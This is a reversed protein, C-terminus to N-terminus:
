GTIERVAANISKEGRACQELLQQWKGSSLGHALEEQFRRGARWVIERALRNRNLAASIEPQNLFARHEDCAKLVADGGTRKLACTLVVPPEWTRGSFSKHFAPGLQRLVRSHPEPS